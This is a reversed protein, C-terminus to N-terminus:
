LEEPIKSYDQPEIGRGQAWKDFNLLMSAISEEAREPHSSITGLEQIRKIAETTDNSSYPIPLFKYLIHKILTKNTEEEARADVETDEILM